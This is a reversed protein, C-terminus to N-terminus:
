RDENAEWYYVYCNGSSLGNLFHKYVEGEDGINADDAPPQLANKSFYLRRDCRHPPNSVEVIWHFTNWQEPLAIIKAKHREAM